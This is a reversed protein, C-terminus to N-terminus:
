TEGRERLEHLTDAATVPLELPTADDADALWIDLADAYEADSMASFEDVIVVVGHPRDDGRRAM